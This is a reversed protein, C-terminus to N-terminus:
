LSNSVGAWHRHMFVFHGDLDTTWWPPLIEYQSPDDLDNISLHVQRAQTDSIPFTWFDFPPTAFGYEDSSMWPLGQFTLSVIGSSDFCSSGLDNLIPFTLSRLMSCGYFAYSGLSNVNLVNDQSVSTLKWCGFFAQDKIYIASPIQIVSLGVCNKFASIGIWIAMPFKVVDSGLGTSNEFCYDGIFQVSSFDLEGGLTCGYFAHGNLTNAHPMWVNKLKDCGSFAYAEVLLVNEMYVDRLEKAGVFAEEAVDLLMPFNVEKVSSDELIRRGIQTVEALELTQLKELKSFAYDAIKRCHPLHIQEVNWPGNQGDLVGSPLNELADFSVLTVSSCGNFASEGVTKLKPFVLSKLSACRAFASARIEEVEPFYCEELAQCGSLASYDIKVINAGYVYKLASDSELAGIGLETLSDPLYLYELNYKYSLSFTDTRVGRADLYTLNYMYSVRQRDADNLRGLLRLATVDYESIGIESLSQQLTGPTLVAITLIGDVRYIRPRQIITIKRIEKQHHFLLHFRREILSYNAALGIEIGVVGAGGSTISVAIPNGESSRTGATQVPTEEEIEIYWPGEATLTFSLTDAPAEFVNEEPIDIHVDYPDAESLRGFMSRRIERATSDVHDQIPSEGEFSLTYGKRLTTPLAVIFYWEGVDFSTGEPANLTIESRGETISNIVPTGDEDLRIEATGAITEGDNGRFIVSRIGPRTVSFCVGGCVNRFHLTNDDTRAVSIFFDKLFTGAAAEQTDPLSVTLATGNFRNSENAPCVAWVPQGAAPADDGFSGKFLATAAPIENDSIFVGHASGCFLDIREQPLWFVAGNSQLVSRVLHEDANDAMFAISESYREEIRTGDTQCAMLVVTMVTWIAWHKLRM